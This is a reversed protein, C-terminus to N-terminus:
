RHHRGTSVNGIKPTKGLVFYLRGNNLFKFSVSPSMVTTSVNDIGAEMYFKKFADCNKESSDQRVDYEYYQFFVAFTLRAPFPIVTGLLKVKFTVM